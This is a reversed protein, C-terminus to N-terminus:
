TTPSGQSARNTPSPFANVRPTAGKRGPSRTLIASAVDTRVMPCLISEEPSLRHGMPSQEGSLLWVLVTQGVAALHLVVVSVHDLVRPMEQREPAAHNTEADDALLSQM